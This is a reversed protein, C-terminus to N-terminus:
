QKKGLMKLTAARRTSSLYTGDDIVLADKLMDAAEKFKKCKVLICSYGIQVHLKLLIFSNSHLGSEVPIKNFIKHAREALPLAKEFEGQDSYLDALAYSIHAIDLHEAGIKM